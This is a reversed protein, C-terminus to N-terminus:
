SRALRQELAPDPVVNLSGQVQDVAVSGHDLGKIKRVDRVLAYMVEVKGGGRGASKLACLSAAQLLSREPVEQGPHDRKLIVHASPGSRAHFWYDFPSAARSLMEHNAKKNKGRAVTFGDDTSFLGVALGQWRKPLPAPAGADPAPRGGSPSAEPLAGAEIRALEKGLENRRRAMHAFGRRAKDALRFLREMNAAPSLRPDLEVTLPGREPHELVLREPLRREEGDYDALRYLNAQLAEGQLKLALLADLRAKEEELKDLARLVKKRRRKLLTLEPREAQEELDPFLTRLGWAAAAELASGFSLNRGPSPWVLPTGPGDAEEPAHFRTPRDGRAVRFYLERAEGPDLSALRRRLPPSVQPFERWVEADRLATDPDPWDPEAGFRDDLADRLLLGERLDLILFRGAQERETPALTLALRLGPWDASWGLVRRGAVRKRLWMVRAPASLPNAPQQASFFLLGASKAPRFLLFRTTKDGDLRLTWVNEAPAHIKEIRRGTLLSGAEAALHRFFNAEM